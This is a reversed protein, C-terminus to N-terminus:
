WRYMTMEEKLLADHDSPPTHCVPPTNEDEYRLDVYRQPSMAVNQTKSTKKVATTDTMVGNEIYATSSIWVKGPWEEKVLWEM